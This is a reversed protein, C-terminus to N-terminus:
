MYFHLSRTRVAYAENLRMTAQPKTAKNYFVKRGGFVRTKPALGQLGATQEGRLSRFKQKVECMYPMSM